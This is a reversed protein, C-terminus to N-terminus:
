HPRGLDRTLIASGLLSQNHDLTKITRKGELIRFAIQIDVLQNCNELKGRELYM